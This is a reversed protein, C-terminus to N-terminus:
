NSWHHTHIINWIWNRDNPFIDFIFIRSWYGFLQTWFWSHCDISWVYHDSSIWITQMFHKWDFRFLSIFMKFCNFCVAWNQNSFWKPLCYPYPPNGSIRPCSFFHISQHYTIMSFFKQIFCKLIWVNDVNNMSCWM